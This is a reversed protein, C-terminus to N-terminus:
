GSRREVVIAPTGWGKRAKQPFPPLACVGVGLGNDKQKHNGCPIQEEVHSRHGMRERVNGFPPVALTKRNRINTIFIRLFWIV